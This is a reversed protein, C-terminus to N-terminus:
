VSMGGLAAEIESELDASLRDRRSPRPPLEPRALEQTSPDQQNDASESPGKGTTRRASTGDAPKSEPTSTVHRRFGTGRNLSLPPKKAPTQGADSPETSPSDAANSDTSM